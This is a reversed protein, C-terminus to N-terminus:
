ELQFNGNEWNGRWAFCGGVVVISTCYKTCCLRYRPIFIRVVPVELKRLSGELRWRRGFDWDADKKPERSSFSWGVLALAGSAHIRGLQSGGQRRQNRKRDHDM